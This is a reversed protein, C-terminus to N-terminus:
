RQGGRTRRYGAPTLGTARTFHEYFSSQSGFGAAHAVDATSADTTLLLRRAEAVRCGVLYGGLTTGMRRRFLTTAYPASLHAAAAADATSVRERFREVCFRAMEAVPDRGTAPDSPPDARAAQRRRALLLRRVLAEVELMAAPGADPDALEARWREFREVASPGAVEHPALVAAGSLLHALDGDPLRWGLALTLPVHLWCADTSALESSGTPVLRHPTAAWFLAVRGADVVFSRGGRLYELRGTVVLNVELDDHRHTRPMRPAPGRHCWLASAQAEEDAATAPAQTTVPPVSLM